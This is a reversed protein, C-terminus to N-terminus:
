STSLELTTIFMPHKIIFTLVLPAVPHLVTSRNRMVSFSLQQFFYKAQLICTPCLFMNLLSERFLRSDPDVQNKPSSPGELATKSYSVAFFTGFLFSTILFLPRRFTRFSVLIPGLHVHTVGKIM